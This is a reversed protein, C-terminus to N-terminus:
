LALHSSSHESRESDFIHVRARIHVQSLIQKYNIVNKYFCFCSKWAVFLDSGSKPYSNCINNNNNNYLRLAFFTKKEKEKKIKPIGKLAVHIICIFYRM